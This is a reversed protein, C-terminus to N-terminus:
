EALTAAVAQLMGLPLAVGRETLAHLRLSMWHTIAQESGANYQVGEPWRWEGSEALAVTNVKVRLRPTAFPTRKSRLVLRVPPVPAVVARRTSDFRVCTSFYVGDAPIDSCFAGFAAEVAECSHMVVQWERVPGGAQGKTQHAPTLHMMTNRGPVQSAVKARLFKLLRLDCPELLAVIDKAADGLRFARGLVRKYLWSHWISADLATVGMM